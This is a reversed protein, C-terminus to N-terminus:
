FFKELIKQFNKRTLSEATSVKVLLRGGTPINKFLFLATLTKYFAM